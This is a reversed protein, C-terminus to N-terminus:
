HHHHSVVGMVSTWKEMVCVWVCVGLFWLWLSDDDDKKTKNQKEIEFGFHNTNFKKEICCRFFYPYLERQIMRKILAFWPFFYKGFIWLIIIYNILKEGIEFHSFGDDDDDDDVASAAAAALCLFFVKILLVSQM